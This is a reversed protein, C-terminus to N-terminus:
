IWIKISQTIKVKRILQFGVLTRTYFSSKQVLKNELITTKLLQWLYHCLTLGNLTAIIYHVLMHSVVTSKGIEKDLFTTLIVKNFFKIGFFHLTASRRTADGYSLPDCGGGGHGGGFAGERARLFFNFCDFSINPLYIQISKHQKQTLFINSVSTLIDINVALQFM